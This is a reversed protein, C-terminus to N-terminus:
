EDKGILLIIEQLLENAQPNAQAWEVWNDSRKHSMCANYINQAITMRQIEGYSLTERGYVAKV